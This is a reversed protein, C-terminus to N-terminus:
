YCSRDYTDKLAILNFDASLSASAWPQRLGEVLARAAAAGGATTFPGLDVQLPRPGYLRESAAGHM